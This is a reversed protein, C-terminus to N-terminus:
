PILVIPIEENFRNPNDNFMVYAINRAIEDTHNILQNDEWTNVEYIAQAIEQYDRKHM